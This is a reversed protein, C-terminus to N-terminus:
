PMSPALPDCPAEAGYPIELPEAADCLGDCFNEVQGGPRLFAQLQEAAAPISIRLWHPTCMDASQQPPLDALPPIFPVHAPNDPDFAGTDYIVFASSLPGPRDPIQPLNTRLSGGLNPLGLTRAAIETVLNPTSQDLWAMTLLVSKANTGPLPNSTIHTVYGDALARSLFESALSLTLATQIPDTIGSLEVVPALEGWDGSRTTLVLTGLGGMDEYANSIDPSLAAFTLGLIGGYSGGGYYMEAQPGAFVGAGTPLQFAPDTNFVATKMMRGLVLTNLVGQRERDAEAPVRNFDSLVSLFFTEDPAAAGTWDTAGAILDLLPYADYATPVDIANRGTDM